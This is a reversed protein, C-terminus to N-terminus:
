VFATSVEPAYVRGIDGFVGWSLRFSDLPLTILGKLSIPIDASILLSVFHNGWTVDKFSMPRLSAGLGQKIHEMRKNGIEYRAAVSHWTSRKGYIYAVRALPFPSSRPEFSFLVEQTLEGLYSQIRPSTRSRSNPGHSVTRRHLHQFTSRCSQSIRGWLFIKQIAIGNFVRGPHSRTVTQVAGRTWPLLTEMGNCQSTM